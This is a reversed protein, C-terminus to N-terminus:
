RSTSAGLRLLLGCALHAAALLTAPRVLIEQVILLFKGGRV